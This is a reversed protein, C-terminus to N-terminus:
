KLGIASCAAEYQATCIEKVTYVGDAVVTAKVNDKTLAVVPVLMTPVRGM